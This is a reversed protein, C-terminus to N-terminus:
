IQIIFNDKKGETIYLLILILKNVIIIIFHKLIMSHEYFLNEKM